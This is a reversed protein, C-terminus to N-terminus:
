SWYTMPKKLPKSLCAICSGKCMSEGAISGEFAEWLDRSFFRVTCVVNRNISHVLGIDTTM